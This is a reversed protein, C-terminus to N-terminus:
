RGRWGHFLSSELGHVFSEARAENREGSPLHRDLVASDEVLRGVNPLAGTEEVETM